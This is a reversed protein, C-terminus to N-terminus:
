EEESELVRETEPDVIETNIPRKWSITELSNSDLGIEHWEGRVKYHLKDWKVYWEEVGNWNEIEPIDITTSPCCAYETRIQVKM